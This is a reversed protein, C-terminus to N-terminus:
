APVGGFTAQARFKRLTRGLRDDTASQERLYALLDVLLSDGAEVSSGSEVEGFRQVFRAPKPLMRQLDAVATEPRVKNLLFEFPVQYFQLAEAIQRAAKVGHPTAEAIVVACTFGTPIGTTVGDLGAKEDVV